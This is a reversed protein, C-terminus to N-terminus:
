SRVAARRRDRAARREIDESSGWPHGTGTEAYRELSPLFHDWGSKCGDFCELKPTLGRHRFALACGGSGDPTLEFSISTGVWDPLPDYRLCTWQVRSGSDAADVHMVLPAGQGFQFQLEGGPSGDGTVSTWWGALGEVTTLAEFAAQPTCELELSAEYDQEHMSDTM